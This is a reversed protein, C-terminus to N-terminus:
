DTAHPQVIGLEADWSAEAGCPETERMPRSGIGPEATSGGVCGALADTVPQRTARTM